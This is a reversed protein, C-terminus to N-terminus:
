ALGLKTQPFRSQLSPDPIWQSTLTQSISLERTTPTGLITRVDQAFTYVVVHGSECGVAIMGNVDIVTPKGFTITSPDPPPETGSRGTSVRTLWSTKQAPPPPSPAAVRNATGNGNEKDRNFLSASLQRLPHFSFAPGQDGIDKVIPADQAERATLHTQGAQSM